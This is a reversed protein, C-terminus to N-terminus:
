TAKRPTVLSLHVLMVLPKDTLLIWIILDDLHQPIKKSVIIATFRKIKTDM